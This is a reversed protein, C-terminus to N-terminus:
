GAIAPIGTRIPRAPAWAGSDKVPTSRARSLTSERLALGLRAYLQASKQFTVIQYGHVSLGVLHARWASRSHNTPGFARRVDTGSWLKGVRLPPRSALQNLGRIDAVGQPGMWPAEGCIWCITM